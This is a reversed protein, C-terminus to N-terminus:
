LDSAQSETIEAALRRVLCTFLTVIGGTTASHPKSVSIPARVSAATEQNVDTEGSDVM